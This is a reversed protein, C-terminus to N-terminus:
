ADSLMGRLGTYRRLRKDNRVMSQIIEDQGVIILYDRARTIATYLVRRTMLKQPGPMAALVVARYESGQAKHVTLAYAPELEGLSDFPYEVAKDDYQVTVLSAKLDIEAVTGIEGNFVGMGANGGMRWPLDYNNRIQMVRDGERYLFEGFKKELKHPAAPNLAEQLAKNLSVTGCPGRRTPTLVQIQSPELGLNGPLREACLELITEVASLMDRRRMFFLDKQQENKLTPMEGRNVSHAGTVIRSEAAQRFIESLRVSPSLGGALVDELVSGPGVAPLQDPDGVLILRADEPIARSISDMLLIDVMSVEDLVVVDCSLPNDEDRLFRLVGLAPDFGFELLRHITSAERGCLESMRKAARGTPAALLAKLGMWDFLRLLGKLTTTKGTGPGGTLVMLSSGAASTIADRQLAAYRIGLEAEIRGILEDMDQPLTKRQASREKIFSAVQKEAHYLRTLYVAGNQCAVVKNDCFLDQLAEELADEPQELLGSAAPVLKERPLYVHGQDLNFILEYLLGAQLRREDGDDVGLTAALKDVTDFPAEFPEYLLIYPNDGLREAADGGYRKSLELAYSPSLEHRVLLEMLRRLATQRSFLAGISEARKPTIGRVSSLREPSHELVDLTEDGFTDVLLRATARGVGQVIGSSLYELISDASAPLLREASRVSFQEGHAPHQSWQGKASITEGPAPAPIHGVATHLSGDECAVRLVAWGTEDNSYVVSQIRGELNEDM